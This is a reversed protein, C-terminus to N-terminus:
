DKALAIAEAEGRDLHESLAEIFQLDKAQCVNYKGRDKLFSINYGFSTLTNLEAAVTVPIFIQGYLKHLLHIHSIHLLATIPSTDPVVIM